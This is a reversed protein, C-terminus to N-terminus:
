RTVEVFVALLTQVRAIARTDAVFALVVSVALSTVAALGGFVLPVSAQEAHPDLLVLVPVLAFLSASLLASSTVVLKSTSHVRDQECRPAGLAELAIGTGLLMERKAFLGLLYWVAISVLTCAVSNVLDKKAAAPSPSALPLSAVVVLVLYLVLQAVWWRYSTAFHRSLPQLYFLGVLLLTTAFVQVVNSVVGMLTSSSFLVLQTVTLVSCLLDAVLGAALMAIGRAVNAM